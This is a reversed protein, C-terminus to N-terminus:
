LVKLKSFWMLFTLTFTKTNKPAKNRYVRSHKTNMFDIVEDVVANM